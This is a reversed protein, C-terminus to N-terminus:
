PCRRFLKAGTLSTVECWGEGPMEIPTVPTAIADYSPLSVWFFYETDNAEEISEVYKTPVRAHIDLIHYSNTLVKGPFMGAKVSEYALKEYRPDNAGLSNQTSANLVSMAVALLGYLAWLLRWRRVPYLAFFLLILGYGSLRAGAIQQTVFQISSSALILLIAHKAMYGSRFRLTSLCALAILLVVCFPIITPATWITGYWNSLFTRLFSWLFYAASDFIYSASYSYSLQTHTAPISSQITLFNYLMTIFLFLAWSTSAIFLEFREARIFHLPKGLYRALIVVPIFVVAILKIPILMGWILYSWIRLRAGGRYHLFVALLFLTYTLIDPSANTALRMLFIFGLAAALGLASPEDWKGSSRALWYILAIAAGFSLYNLLLAGQLPSPFLSLILSYGPPWHNLPSGSLDYYGNGAQISYAGVIYTHADEDRVGIRPQLIFVTFASLFLIVVCRTLNGFRSGAPSTTQREKGISISASTM